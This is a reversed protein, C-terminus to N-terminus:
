VHMSLICVRSTLGLLVLSCWRVAHLAPPHPPPRRPVQETHSSDPTSLLTSERRSLKCVRSIVDMIRAERVQAPTRRGPGEEVSVGADTKSPLRDSRSPIQLTSPSVQMGLM